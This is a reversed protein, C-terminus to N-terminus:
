MIGGDEAPVGAEMVIEGINGCGIRADGRWHQKM